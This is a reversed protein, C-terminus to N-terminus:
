GASLKVHSILSIETDNRSIKNEISPLASAVDTPVSVVYSNGLVDAILM